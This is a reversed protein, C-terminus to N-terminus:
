AESHYEKFSKMGHLPIPGRPSPPNKRPSRLPSTTTVAQKYWICNLMGRILCPLGIFVASVLCINLGIYLATEQEHSRCPFSTNCLLSVVLSSIGGAIFLVLILLIWPHKTFKKYYYAADENLCDQM